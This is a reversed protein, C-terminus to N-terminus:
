CNPGWSGLVGSHLSRLPHLWKNIKPPPLLGLTGELLAYM